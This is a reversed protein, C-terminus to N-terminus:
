FASGVIIRDVALILLGIRNLTISNHHELAVRDHVHADDIGYRPPAPFQTDTVGSINDVVGVGRAPLMTPRVIM